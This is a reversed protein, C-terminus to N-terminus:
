FTGAKHVISLLDLLEKPDPIEFMTDDTEKGAHDEYYAYFEDPKPNACSGEAWGLVLWGGRVSTKITHLTVLAM